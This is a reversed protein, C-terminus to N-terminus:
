KDYTVEKNYLYKRIAFTSGLIGIGLGLALFIQLLPIQLESPETLSILAISESIRTGFNNFVYDYLYYVALYSVISALLSFFIAEIVFPIRIYRNTAGVYRMIAIENSRSLVTLKITNSMVFFTILMLIVVLATGFLKVYRSIRQVDNVLDKYYKIEDINQSASTNENIQKEFDEVNSIDNLKVIFSAPLIGESEINDLLDANEGWSDKMIQLAEESSRFDVTKEFPIKNIADEVTDIQFQTLDQKLFIEVDNVKTQVQFAVNNITVTIIIILGIILLTFFTSTVSVYGLHKHKWIGKIGEKFTNIFRRIAKM